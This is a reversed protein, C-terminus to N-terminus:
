RKTWQKSNHLQSTPLRCYSVALINPQQPVTLITAGHKDANSNNYM